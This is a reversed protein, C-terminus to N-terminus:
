PSSSYRNVFRAAEYILRILKDPFFPYTRFQTSVRKGLYTGAPFRVLLLQPPTDVTLGSIPPKIQSQLCDAGGSCAALLPHRSRGVRLVALNLLPEVGRAELDKIKFAKRQSFYLLPLPLSLM